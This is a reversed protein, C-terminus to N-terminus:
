PSCSSIWKLILSPLSLKGFRLVWKIFSTRALTRAQFKKFNILIWYSSSVKSRERPYLKNEILLNFNSASLVDKIEQYSPNEICNEKALKRGEQKTKKSNIYAPYICIWRFSFFITFHFFCAQFQRFGQRERESHQKNASWPTLQINQHGHAHSHAM